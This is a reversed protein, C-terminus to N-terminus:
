LEAHIHLFTAAINFHQERVVRALLDDLNKPQKFLIIDIDISLRKASDMLLMLATVGKFIFPLKAKGLGELLFLARIVKEVLIPDANRNNKSVQQIWDKTLTEKKIM